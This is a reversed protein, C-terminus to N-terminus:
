IFWSFGISFLITVKFDKSLVELALPHKSHLFMLPQGVANKRRDELAMTHKNNKFADAIRSEEIFPLLLVWLWPLHKGNPDIPVDSGYLDIIPSKKETMLWQYSEPLAHASEAPLVALLQEV